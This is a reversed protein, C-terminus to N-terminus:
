RQGKTHFQPICMSFGHISSQVSVNVDYLARLNEETIVSRPSGQAFLKGNQILIVDSAVLLAHDPFHTTMIITTGKSALVDLHELLRLQNGYDLGSVPEDMLLLPAEQALARAILVLQKEGGSLQNYARDKLHLIGITELVDLVIQKDKLTYTSFLTQQSIRGMLVIEFVSFAFPQMSSQPVYAMHTALQQQTYTSLEHQHLLITGSSPNLIGLMLKLLTSKGTGNPGLLAVIGGPKISLYISELIKKQTYEFSLNQVEIM